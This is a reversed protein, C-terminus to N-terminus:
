ARSRPRGRSQPLPHTPDRWRRDNGCTAARLLRKPRATNAFAAVLISTWRNTDSAAQPHRDRLPPDASLIAFHIVADTFGPQQLPLRIGTPETIDHM